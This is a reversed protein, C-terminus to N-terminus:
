KTLKFHTVVPLHDSFTVHTDIAYSEFSVGESALIYDIRLTNMFGRYTYPYGTGCEVFADQLGHSMVRYSYSLPTDNFDGCVIVRYPSAEIEKSLSDVHHARSVCSRKFRSIIDTLKDERASDAIFERSTLYKDDTEKIMTSTLHNNFIRITDNLIKIDVWMSRSAGANYEVPPHNESKAVIPYRSYVSLSNSSAVNYKKFKDSPAENFREARNEQVCLIDPSISDIYQALEVTSWGRDDNIHSRLNFSMLKVAGRRSPTEYHNNIDIKAFRTVKGAGAILLILIPM